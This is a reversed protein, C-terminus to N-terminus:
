FGMGGMGGSIPIQRRNIPASNQNSNNPDSGGGLSNVRRTPAPAAAHTPSNSNQSNSARSASNSNNLNTTSNQSNSNQSNTPDTQPAIKISNTASTATSNEGGYNKAFITFDVFDIKGDSNLDMTQAIEDKAATGYVSNFISFDKFDVKGDGDFDSRQFIESSSNLRSFGSFTTNTAGGIEADIGGIPIGVASEIGKVNIFYQAGGKQESTSILVTEDNEGFKLQLIELKNQPAGKQFIEFDDKQLTSYKLPQSFTVKMSNKSLAEVKIIRPSGFRDGVLHGKENRKPSVYPDFTIQNETARNQALGLNETNAILTYLTTEDRERTKLIVIQGSENATSFKVEEVPIWNSIDDAKVVEFCANKSNRQGACVKSLNEADLNQTFRVQIEYRSTAIAGSLFPLDRDGSPIAGDSVYFPLTAEASVNGDVDFATLPILYPDISPTTSTEAVVGSLVFWQGRTGERVSPSLPVIRNSIQSGVREIGDTFVPTKNEPSDDTPVTTATPTSAAFVSEFLFSTQTPTAVEGTLKAITGLNAIVSSIEKDNQEVFVYFNMPTEGDNPVVRPTTYSKSISIEPPIITQNEESIENRDEIKFDIEETFYNGAKDTVTFYVERWGPITEKPITLNESTFIAGNGDLALPKLVFPDMGADFRGIISDIDEGGDPDTARVSFRFETEGDNFAGKRPISIIDDDDIRPKASDDHKQVTIPESLTQSVQMGEHDIVTIKVTYTGEKTTEPLTFTETQFFATKVSDAHAREILNELFSLSCNEETEPKSEESERCDVGSKLNVTRRRKGASCQSWQGLIYDSDTCNRIGSNDISSTSSNPADTQEIKIRSMSRTGLGLKGLDIVVQAINDAGDPDSIEAHFSLQDGAKTSIINQNAYFNEVIPEASFDLDRTVEIQL